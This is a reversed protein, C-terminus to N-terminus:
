SILNLRLAEAVAGVRTMSGLKKNISELHYRVTRESIDLQHAIEKDTKEAAILQLVDLERATLDVTNRDDALL